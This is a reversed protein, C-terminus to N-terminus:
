RQFPRFVCIILPAETSESFNCGALQLKHICDRWLHLTIFPFTQLRALLHSFSALHYLYHYHLCFINLNKDCLLMIPPALNFRVFYWLCSEEEEFGGKCKWKWKWQFNKKVKVKVPQVQCLIVPLVSGRQNGRKWQFYGGGEEGYISWCSRTKGESNSQIYGRRRRKKCWKVKTRRMKRRSRKEEVDIEGKCEWRPKEQEKCSQREEEWLQSKGCELTTSVLLEMIKLM